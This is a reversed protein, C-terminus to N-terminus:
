CVNETASNLLRAVVMQCARSPDKMFVIYFARQGQFYLYVFLDRGKNM